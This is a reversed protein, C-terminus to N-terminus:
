MSGNSMSTKAKHLVKKAPSGSLAKRSSAQFADESVNRIAAHVDVEQYRAAINPRTLVCCGSIFPSM